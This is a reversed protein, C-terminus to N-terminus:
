SQLVHLPEIVILDPRKDFLVVHLLRKAAARTVALSAPFWECQFSYNEMKSGLMSSVERISLLRDVPIM